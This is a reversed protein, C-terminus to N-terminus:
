RTVVTGNRPRTLAGDRVAWEGNVMVHLIGVPPLGPEDDTARAAVTTPDFVVLDAAAGARLVGRGSLGLRDAPLSTIRRIAEALGIVGRERVYGGLLLPFTGFTKPMLGVSAHRVPHSSMGDTVPVCDPHSLLQDLDAQRKITPAVWFQGDEEVLRLAAELPAVDWDRAVAAVSRGVHRANSERNVKVILDDEWDRDTESLEDTIRRRQARDGLRGITAGLGGDRAWQPLSQVWAGGGRRYLTLDFTADDGGTAARDIMGVLTAAEDPPDTPSPYLHSVNVPCEARRGTDLAEALSERVTAEGYRMHTHYGKGRRGAAAAIAVLEDGGAFAGPTYSLGSTVGLAGEDLADAVTGAMRDIETRTALRGESGMVLRRITNHGVMTGVNTRPRAARVVDLYMGIGDWGWKGSPHGEGGPFGFVPEEIMLSRRTCEDTPAASFGCHGVIQTTVGQLVASVCDLDSLVSVDSHTHMDIFGPAVVLGAADVARVDPPISDSGVAVIRDGAVVVSGQRAPGGSGDHITADRIVTPAASPRNTM